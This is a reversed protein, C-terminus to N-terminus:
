PRLAAPVSCAHPRTAPSLACMCQERFYCTPVYGSLRQLFAAMVKEEGMVQHVFTTWRPCPADPEYPVPTWYLGFDETEAPCLEGTRLNVLGSGTM